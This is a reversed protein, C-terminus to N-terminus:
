GSVLVTSRLDINVSRRNPVSEECTHPNPVYDECNHFTPVSEECRVLEECSLFMFHSVQPCIKCGLSISISRVYIECEDFTNTGIRWM